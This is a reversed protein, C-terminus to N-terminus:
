LPMYPLFISALVLWGITVGAMLVFLHFLGALKRSKIFVEVLLAALVLTLVGIIRINKAESFAVSRTTLLPLALEYDKWVTAFDYLRIEDPDAEDVILTPFCLSSISLVLLSLVALIITFFRGDGIKM